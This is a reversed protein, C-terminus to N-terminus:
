KAFFAAQAGVPRIITEVISFHRDECEFARIGALQFEIFPTVM